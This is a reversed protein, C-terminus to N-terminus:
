GENNFIKIKLAFKIPTTTHVCIEYVAGDVNDVGICDVEVQDGSVNYQTKIMEKVASIKM